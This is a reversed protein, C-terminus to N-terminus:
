LVLLHQRVLVVTITRYWKWSIRYRGEVIDVYGHSISFRLADTVDRVPLQTCAVIDSVEAFDVQVIARLVFLM